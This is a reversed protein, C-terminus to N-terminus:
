PMCLSWELAEVLSRHESHTWTIAYMYTLEVNVELHMASACCINPLVKAHLPCNMILHITATVLSHLVKVDDCVELNM